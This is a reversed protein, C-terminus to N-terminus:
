LIDWKTFIHILQQRSEEVTGNNDIIGDAWKTKDDLPIQSRIRSLADASSSQDRKMLRELQTKKDVYVLLTRDVMHSLKSEFLLPIDMVVSEQVELLEDKRALMRERVAPHVFSNLKLRKEEDNFIIAGLKKRNISRDEELIDGGFFEVIQAYAAEGPSVVERAIKDADIVPINLEQIMVSITSKGSGIGGTLGVIM